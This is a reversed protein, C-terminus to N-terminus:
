SLLRDIVPCTSDESNADCDAIWQTLERRLQRLERIRADVFHLKAAALERTARCSKRSRLSLLAQIEALTFGVTQVRKIFRLREAGEDSYRRVSGRPRRPEPVLGRRQYYRVCSGGAVDRGESKLNSTPADTFVIEDKRHVRGAFQGARLAPVHRDLRHRRIGADVEMVTHTAARRKARSSPAATDETGVARNGTRGYLGRLRSASNRRFSSRSIPADSIVHRSRM